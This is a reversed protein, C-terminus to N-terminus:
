QLAEEHITIKARRRAGQLWTELQSNARESALRKEIQNRYDELRAPQGPHAAEAPPKVAKEFYASVQEDTIQVGSEFRVEIFSLVTRQWLLENRFDHDTIGYRALTEVYEREDKFHGTKFEQIAPALEAPDPLPYRSNELDRQILKQDIMKQLTTQRAHPSLDPQTGDQFASVRIQRDLDSRTIVRTDVSAAIRDIIEACLAPAAAFLLLPLAALRRTL